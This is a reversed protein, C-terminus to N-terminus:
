SGYIDALADNLQLYKFRFGSELLKEVSTNTSMTAVISMEGMLLSLFSKPVKFPWVPRHLQHAIAQTITKNTVPYPACANYTGTISEQELAHIFIGVMDDIHIWPVWQKGDSLTAGAFFRIPLAMTPLAGDNKDLVVGTRLKIVNIGMAKGEDAAAEWAICCEPLFGKGATSNEHLIEDARDGYYGVAASSIFKSLSSGTAKIATYLLQASQVRSKVIQQKQEDTWKKAAVSEGALHIISSVGDMCGFDIEKKEVDWLYVKVNPIDVPKRSLVAVTHGKALLAKTLRRGILGTAGTILIHQKM